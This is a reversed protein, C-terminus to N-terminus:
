FLRGDKLVEKFYDELPKQSKKKLCEKLIPLQEIDIGFGIMLDENFVEPWKRQIADLEHYQQRIKEGHHTGQSHLQALPSYCLLLPHTHTVKSVEM